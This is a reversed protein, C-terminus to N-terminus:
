SSWIPNRMDKILQRLERQVVDLKDNNLDSHERLDVYRDKVEQSLAQQGSKLSNFESFMRKQGALIEALVLEIRELREEVSPQPLPDTSKPEENM